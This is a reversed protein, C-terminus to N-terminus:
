IEDAALRGGGWRIAALAMRRGFRRATERDGSPPSIEPAVSDSQAMVGLFSGMRNIAEPAAGHNGGADGAPMEVQGVWVMGQQAAYVSFAQLTALKDGSYSGSNTFGGALKDRWVHEGWRSGSADIFRKFDASPGGMYTPCGFVMAEVADLEGLAAIAEDCTYLRATVGDVSGAGEAVAKAIVETHGFASHYVVAVTPM